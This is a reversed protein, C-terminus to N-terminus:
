SRVDRQFFSYYSSCLQLKVSMRLSKEHNILSSIIDVDFHVGRDVFAHRELVVVASGADDEVHGLSGDSYSHVLQHTSSTM